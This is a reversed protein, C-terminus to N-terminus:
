YLKHGRLFVHRITLDPNLVVINALSGVTLFGYSSAKLVNAPNATACRIAAELPIGFSVARRVCDMLNSVSGAITGDSLTALNGCVTVPQGGLSYSGDPMGTAMMSDSILIIREAGYLRFAMRIASPAIHIGDCILEVHCNPTDFAAGPLGTERHTFGNMANFLHTVHSAGADFAKKCIAYDAATHALSVICNKSVEHIFDLSGDQEPAIDVLRILNGSAKQLRQFLAPNPKHLYAANQAGKKAESLFPGEMHIGLLDACDIQSTIGETSHQLAYYQQANAMIGTLIDESFTMSAPCIGTIGQAAEYRAMEQLAELTGDCFDKGVCGHFHIDILGPIVYCGNADYIDQEHCAYSDTGITINNITTGQIDLSGKQFQYDPTYINGNIIKM